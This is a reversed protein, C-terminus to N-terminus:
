NGGLYPTTWGITGFMWLSYVPWSLLLTILWGISSRMDLHMPLGLAIPGIISIVFYAFGAVPYAMFGVLWHSVSHALVMWAVPLLLAVWGAPWGALGVALLAVGGAYPIRRPHLWLLTATATPPVVLGAVRWEPRGDVHANAWTAAMSLSFHALLGLALGRIYIEYRREM